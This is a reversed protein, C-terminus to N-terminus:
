LAYMAMPDLYKDITLHQVNTNGKQNKIQFYITGLKITIQVNLSSINGCTNLQKNDKDNTTSTNLIKRKM